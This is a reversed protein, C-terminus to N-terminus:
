RRDKLQKSIQEKEVMESTYAKLIPTQKLTNTNVTQKNYKHSDM